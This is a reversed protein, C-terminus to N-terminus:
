QKIGNWDAETAADLQHEMLMLWKGGRKTVLAEFRRYSVTAVGAQTTTSYRFIGSEFGSEADDQRKSFRFIVNAKTGAKKAAAIDKGWGALAQAIPKTGSNSVLIASPHYTRGMAVIDDNVVSATIASWLQADIELSSPSAASHMRPVTFVLSLSAVLLPIIRTSPM